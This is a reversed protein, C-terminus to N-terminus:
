YYLTLATNPIPLIQFKSNSPANPRSGSEFTAIGAVPLELAWSVRKNFHLELGIGPGFSTHVRNNTDNPYSNAEFRYMGQVGFLGYMRAVRGRYFSYMGQLGLATFSDDKGFLPIGTAHFGWRNPFHKRVGIGIGGTVGGGLTLGLTSALPGKSKGTTTTKSAGQVAPAGPALSLAVLVPRLTPLM